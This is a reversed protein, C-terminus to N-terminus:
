IDYNSIFIFSHLFMLIFAYVLIFARQTASTLWSRYKKGNEINKVIFKEYVHM